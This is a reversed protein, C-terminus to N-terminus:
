RIENPRTTDPRGAGDRETAHPSTVDPDPAAAVDSLTANRHMMGGRTTCNFQIRYLRGTERNM